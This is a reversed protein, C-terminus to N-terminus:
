GWGELGGADWDNLEEEEAGLVEMREIERRFFDREQEIMEMDAGMSKPYRRINYFHTLSRLAQEHPLSEEIEADVDGGSLWDDKLEPRCFLYISTIVRM